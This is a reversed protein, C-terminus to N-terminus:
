GIVVNEIGEGSEPAGLADELVDVVAAGVRGFLIGGTEGHGDVELM